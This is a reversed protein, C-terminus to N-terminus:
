VDTEDHPTTELAPVIREDIGLAALAEAQVAWMEARGPPTDHDYGLLHLTGHVVLLALSDPLPHGAREAQARAYPYAILLDGLCTTDDDVGAPPLEAPFSLVDTPADVQRFQRNLAQVAADTTIVINLSSEPPLDHLALAARAAQALRDAALPFAHDNQIEITFM